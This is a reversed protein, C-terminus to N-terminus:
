DAFGPGADGGDGGGGALIVEEIGVGGFGEDDASYGAEKGLFGQDVVEVVDDGGFVETGEIDLAERV